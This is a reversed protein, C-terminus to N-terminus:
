LRKDMEPTNQGKFTTKERWTVKIKRLFIVVVLCDICM